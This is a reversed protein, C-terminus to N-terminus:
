IAMDKKLEICVLCKSVAVNSGTYLNTCSKFLVSSLKRALGGANVPCDNSQLRPHRIVIPQPPPSVRDKININAGLQLLQRVM